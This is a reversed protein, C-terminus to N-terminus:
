VHLASSLLAKEEASLTQFADKLLHGVDASQSPLNHLLAKMKEAIYNVQQQSKIKWVFSKVESMHDQLWHFIKEDDDWDIEAQQSQYYQQLQALFQKRQAASEQVKCELSNFLEFEVLRRRLRWYFYTRSEAWKVLKRIVGKAKM